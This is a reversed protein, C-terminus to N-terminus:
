MFSFIAPFTSRSCAEIQRSLMYCESMLIAGSAVDSAEETVDIVSRCKFPQCEGYLLESLNVITLKLSTISLPVRSSTFQYVKHTLEDLSSLQGPPRLQVYFPGPNTRDSLAPTLNM